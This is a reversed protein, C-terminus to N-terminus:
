ACSLPRDRGLDQNWQRLTDIPVAAFGQYRHNPPWLEVSTAHHAIGLAIGACDVGAGVTQFYVEARGTTRQWLSDIESYIAGSRGSAANASLANNGLVCEPGGHVRSQACVQMVQITVSPDATAIGNTVSRYPNFAFTIPTRLWGSYDALAGALCRQQAQPTWGAAQMTQIASRTMNMVFPEGTLTACSSVSVARVLSNDDYRAALAHQFSSWAKAYPATWWRGYTHSIGKTMVTIPSGGLSKAWTPATNGGFIRLKM